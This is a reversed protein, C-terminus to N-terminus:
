GWANPTAALAYQITLNLSVFSTNWTSINPFTTPMEARPLYNVFGGVECLADEEFTFINDSLSLLGGHNSVETASWPIVFPVNGNNFQTLTPNSTSSISHISSGQAFIFRSIPVTPIATGILGTTSNRVLVEGNMKNAMSLTLTNKLDAAGTATFTGDVHLRATPINTGIGVNGGSLIRLKETNATRFSLDKNDTTGIFNISPDTGTNGAKLWADNINVSAGAVNNWQTGDWVCVGVEVGTITVLNYVTLGTHLDKVKGVNTIFNQDNDIFPQLTARNVLKVRPLVIGGTTSTENASNPEADKLDLLAAKVPEGSSGITVQGYINCVSFSVILLMMITTQLRKM